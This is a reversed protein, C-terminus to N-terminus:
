LLDDDQYVFTPLQGKFLTDLAETATVGHKRCTILYARIRSFILAGELSRFCGSIKQQVKTMRLDNEGQNNTFPVDNNEMFRLVEDERNILRELLNRSKPKKMRGRQGKKRKTKPEPCEKEADNLIQRYQTRYQDSKKKPLCGGAKDVTVNLARLFKDMRKYPTLQYQSLYVSRGKVSPGYQIPRTVWTPFPASFRKGSADEVIQAQYETIIINTEIDIVQRKDFGVETYSGRPLTRKDLKIVEVQDPNTVPKLQVGTRGPQGGPKRKSSKKTSGRKRNKDESPPKSSNRSTLGKRQLLITVLLFLVEIASKLALSINKENALLDRAKEISKEVNINSLKM